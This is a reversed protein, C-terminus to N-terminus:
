IAQSVLEANVIPVKQLPFTYNKCPEYYPYVVHSASKIDFVHDIEEVNPLIMSGLLDFPDTRNVPIRELFPIPTTMKINSSSPTNIPIARWVM